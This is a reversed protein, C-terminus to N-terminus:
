YFNRNIYGTNLNDSSDERKSDIIWSMSTMRAMVINFPHLNSKVSKLLEWVGSNITSFLEAKGIPTSFKTCNGDMDNTSKIVLPCRDDLVM